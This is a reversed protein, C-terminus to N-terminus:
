FCCRQLSPLNHFLTKIKRLMRYICMILKVSDQFMKVTQTECMRVEGTCVTDPPSNCRETCDNCLIPECVLSRIVTHDGSSLVLYSLDLGIHVTENLVKVCDGTQWMLFFANTHTTDQAPDTCKRRRNCVM